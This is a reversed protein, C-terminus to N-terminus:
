CLDPESRYSVAATGVSSLSQRLVTQLSFVLLISMKEM